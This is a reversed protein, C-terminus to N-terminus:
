GEHGYAEIRALADEIVIDGDVLEGRDASERGERIRERIRELESDRAKLVRLAEGILEERSKYKGSRLQEAVLQEIGTDM